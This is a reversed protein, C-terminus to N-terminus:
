DLNRAWSLIKRIGARLLQLRARRAESEVRERVGAPYQRFVDLLTPQYATALVSGDNRLIMSEGTRLYYDKIDGLQTVWVEGLRVRLGYGALADIKLAAGRNIKFEGAGM